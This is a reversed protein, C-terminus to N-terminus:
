SEIWNYSEKAILYNFIKNKSNKPIKNIIAINAIGESNKVIEMKHKLNRAEQYDKCIVIQYCTKNKAIGWDSMAKDRAKVVYINQHELEQHYVERFRKKAEEVDLM